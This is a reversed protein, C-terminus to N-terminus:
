RRHWNMSGRPWPRTKEMAAFYQAELREVYARRDVDEGLFYGNGDRAAAAPVQPTRSQVEPEQPHPQVPEAPKPWFMWVAIILCACAGAWVMARGRGDLAEYKERAQQLSRFFGNM